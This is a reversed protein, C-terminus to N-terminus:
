AKMTDIKPQKVYCLPAEGERQAQWNKPVGHKLMYHIRKAGGVPTNDADSWNADFLWEWLVDTDNYFGHPINHEGFARQTYDVWSEGEKPKVGAAPGWGVMCATSGCPHKKTPRGGYDEEMSHFTLIDFMSPNVFVLFEALKNLNKRQKDTIKVEIHEM